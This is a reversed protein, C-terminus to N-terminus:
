RVVESERIIFGSMCVVGTVLLFGFGLFAGPGVSSLVVRILDKKETINGILDFIGLDEIYYYIKWPIFILETFVLIGEGMMAAVYGILYKWRKLPVWVIIVIMITLVAPVVMGAKYVIFLRSIVESNQLKDGVVKAAEGADGILIDTLLNKLPEEKEVNEQVTDKLISTTIDQIIDGMSHSRAVSFGFGLFAMLGTILIIINFVRQIKM